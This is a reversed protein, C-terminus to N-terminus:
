ATVEPGDSGLLEAALEELGYSRSAKVLVVDGPQLTEVPVEETDDGRKVLATEPALNALAEIARRARGM